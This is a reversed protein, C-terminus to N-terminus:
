KGRDQSTIMFTIDAESVKKEGVFVDGHAKGIKMGRHQTLKVEIRLQDGPVVAQRFRVNDASMFLPMKTVNESRKLMMVGAVQAMAEVQLVGPMIPQGPFHGEFFPENITVNKLGVAYDKGVELIRDVMLFPYRHPIRERIEHNSIEKGM